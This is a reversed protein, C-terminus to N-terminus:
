TEHKDKNHQRIQEKCSQSPGVDQSEQTSHQLTKKESIWIIHQTLHPASNFRNRVTAKKKIKLIILMSIEVEVMMFYM